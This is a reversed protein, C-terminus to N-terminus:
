KHLIFLSNEELYFLNNGLTVECEWVRKLIKLLTEPQHTEGCFFLEKPQKPSTEVLFSCATGYSPNERNRESLSQFFGVCGM